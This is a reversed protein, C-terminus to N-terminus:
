KEKVGEQFGIEWLEREDTGEPYPCDFLSKGDMGAVFGEGYYDKAATM